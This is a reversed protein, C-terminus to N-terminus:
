KKWLLDNIFTYFIWILSFFIHAVLVYLIQYLIRNQDELIKTYSIFSGSGNGIFQDEYSLESFDLEIFSQVISGSWEEPDPFNCVIEAIFVDSWSNVWDGANIRYRVTSINSGDDFTSFATFSAWLEICYQTASATNGRLLRDWPISQNTNATSSIDSWSPNPFSQNAWFSIPVFWLFLVFFILIKSKM